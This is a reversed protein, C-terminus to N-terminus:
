GAHRPLGRQERRRHRRVRRQTRAHAARQRRREDAAPHDRAGLLSVPPATVTKAPREPLRREIWRLIHAARPTASSPSAARSTSCSSSCGSARPSCRWRRREEALVASPRHGVVRGDSCRGPKRTRRDRRDRRPVALRRRPLVREHLRLESGSGRSRRRRAGRRLRAVAFSTLKARTPSVTFAAAGAENERVGVIARGIGTRRLHGVLLLVLVLVGLAFYYYARNHLTLDVPGLKGRDFEGSTSGELGVLIPRPFIYVEAAIAFAMTSIALLLGRVRLAGVGVAAAVISSIVRASSCRSSSRCAICPAPDTSRPRSCSREPRSASCPRRPRSRRPGAPQPAARLRRQDRGGRARRPAPRRGDCVAARRRRRSPSLALRHQAHRRARARGREARRRRRVRGTRALAPRGLRHAGHGLGRHDRDGLIM